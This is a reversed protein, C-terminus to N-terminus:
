NEGTIYEVHSDVGRERERERDKRNRGGQMKQIKKEGWSNM